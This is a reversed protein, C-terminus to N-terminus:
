EFWEINNTSYMLLEEPVWIQWKECSLNPNYLNCSPGWSNKILYECKNEESNFRRGVIISAHPNRSEGSRDKIYNPTILVNRDYGLYLPEGRELIRDIISNNFGSGRLQDRRPFSSSQIRRGDCNLDVLRSMYNQEEAQRLVGIFDDWEMNPFISNLAEVQEPCDSVQHGLQISEAESLDRDGYLSHRLDEIAEIAEIHQKISPGGRVDSDLCLGFDRFFDSFVRAAIGGNTRSPEAEHCMLMFM